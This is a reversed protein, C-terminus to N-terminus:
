YAQYVGCNACMHGETTMYFLPNGCLCHWATAPAFEFKWRGKHAGCAPCEMDITGTPAVAQWEHKCAICFAAGQGHQETTSTERPKFPIVSM